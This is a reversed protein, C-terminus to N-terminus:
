SGLILDIVERVAGEGGKLRTVYDVKERVAEVADAVCFSLGVMKLLPLDNLDDGIFAVEEPDLKYKELLLRYIDLKDEVGQYIEEIGLEEARKLVIQSNRGTIIVPIIGKDMLLKIGLGDKTNFAKFVEGQPGIYIKGDTLTGDVDMILM